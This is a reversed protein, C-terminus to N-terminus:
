YLFMPETKPYYHTFCFIISSVTFNEREIVKLVNEGFGAFFIYRGGGGIRAVYGQHHLITIYRISAPLKIEWSLRVQTNTDPGDLGVENVPLNYNTLFKKKVAPTKGTLAFDAFKWM